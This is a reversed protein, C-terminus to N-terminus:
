TNESPILRYHNVDDVKNREAEKRMVMRSLSNSTQRRVGFTVRAEHSTKALEASIDAEPDYNKLRKIRYKEEHLWIRSAREPTIFARIASLFESFPHWAGDQMVNRLAKLVEGSNASM